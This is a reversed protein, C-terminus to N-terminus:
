TVMAATSLTWQRSGSLNETGLFWDGKNLDTWTEGGDITKTLLGYSGVIGSANREIFNGGSAFGTQKDIFLINSYGINQQKVLRWNNGGSVTKYIGKSTCAYGVVSTTFVLQRINVGDLTTSLKSWTDGGDTSRYLTDRAALIIKSNIPLFCFLPTNITSPFKLPQWSNGGDVTRLLVNDLASYGLVFGTDASVFNISTLTGTYNTDIVKWNANNDAVPNINESKCSYLFITFLLLFMRM